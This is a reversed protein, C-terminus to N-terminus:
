KYTELFKEPTLNTERFKRLMCRDDLTEAAWRGKLINLRLKYQVKRNIENYGIPSDLSDYVYHGAISETFTEGAGQNMTRLQSM